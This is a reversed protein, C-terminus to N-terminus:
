GASAGGGSWNEARNAAQTEWPNAATTEAPIEATTEAPDVVTDHDTLLGHQGSLVVELVSSQQQDAESLFPIVAIRVDMPSLARRYGAFSPFEATLVWARADETSRALRVWDCTPQASLLAVAARARGTFGADQARFRCVLQIVSAATALSDRREPPDRADDNERTM